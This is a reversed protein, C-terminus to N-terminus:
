HYPKNVWLHPHVPSSSPIQLDLRTNMLRRRLMAVCECVCIHAHPTSMTNGNTQEARGQEESSLPYHSAFARAFTRRRSWIPDILHARDTGEERDRELPPFSPM